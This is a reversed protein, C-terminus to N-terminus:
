ARFLLSYQLGLLQAATRGDVIREDATEDFEFIPMLEVANVGLELLYPLKEMLGAFTGGHKVGSSPHKTFGRVHTEYIVMDQFPIKSDCFGSWDFSDQVVRAHYAKGQEKRCGWVSQGTVARAYPDLLFETRDFLLGRAPDYRGMWGTLM